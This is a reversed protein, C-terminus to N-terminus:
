TARLYRFAGIVQDDAVVACGVVFKDGGDVFGSNLSRVFLIPKRLGRPQAQVCPIAFGQPVILSSSGDRPSKGLQLASLGCKYRSLTSEDGNKPPSSM